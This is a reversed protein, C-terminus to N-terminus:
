NKEFLVKKMWRRGAASKLYKERKRAAAMSKYEEQYIIVWPRYKKTYKQTGWNHRKLREQTNITIGVYSKNFKKSLLVYLYCNM